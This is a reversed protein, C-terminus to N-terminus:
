CARDPKNAPWNLCFFTLLQFSGQVMHNQELDYNMILQDALFFALWFTISVLFAREAKKHWVATPKILSCSAQLFLLAILSSWIIIGAYFIPPLWSPLSYINLSKLLFPYNLDPAWPKSLWHIHSLFGAIDTWAAILWWLAWFIIIIKKLSEM